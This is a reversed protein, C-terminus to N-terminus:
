NPINFYHENTTNANREKTFVSPALAKIEEKGIFENKSLENKSLIM